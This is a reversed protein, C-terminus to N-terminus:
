HRAPEAEALLDRWHTEDRSAVTRARELSQLAEANEGLQHQVLAFITLDEALPLRQRAAAGDVARKAVALASAFNGLRYQALAELHLAPVGSTIQENAEQVLALAREYHSRTANRRMLGAAAHKLLVFPNSQSSIYQRALARTAEDLSKDAALYEDIQVRSLVGEGAVLSNLWHSFERAAADAALPEVEHIRDESLRLRHHTLELSSWSAGLNRGIFGTEFRRPFGPLAVLEQGTVADWIKIENIETQPAGFGGVGSITSFRATTTPVTATAIREGDESAGIQIIAGQHGRLEARLMGTATEYCTVVQGSAVALTRGANLYTVTPASRDSPGALVAIQEGSAMNWVVIKSSETNEPIFSAVVKTDPSVWAMTSREESWLPKGSAINWVQIGPTSTMGFPNTVRGALPPLNPLAILLNSHFEIRSSMIPVPDTVLEQGDNLNWLHLRAQPSGAHDARERILTAVRTCDTSFVPSTIAGAYSRIAARPPALVGPRGFGSSPLERAPLRRLLLERDTMLNWVKFEVATALDGEQDMSLIAAHESNPSFFATGSTGIMPVIREPIKGTTDTIRLTKSDTPVAINDSEDPTRQPQGFSSRGRPEGYQWRGDPSRRRSSESALSTTPPRNALPPQSAQAPPVPWVCITGDGHASLLRSGDASFAIQRFPRLPGKFEQIVEGSATSCLTVKTVPQSRNSTRASTEDTQPLLAFRQGDPSFQITGTLVNRSNASRQNSAPLYQNALMLEAGTAVDFMRGRENFLASGQAMLRSGDPTFELGAVMVPPTTVRKDSGLQAITIGIPEASSGRSIGTKVALKSGDPSLALYAAIFPLEERLPIKVQEVEDGTRGDWIQVVPERLVAAIRSGDRSCVFARENGGIVDVQKAFVVEGTMADLMQLRAPRRSAQTAEIPNTPRPQTSSLISSTRTLLGIRESDVFCVEVDWIGEERVSMGGDIRKELRLKGTETDWLRVLLEATQSTTRFRTVDALWKGDASFAPFQLAAIGPTPSRSFVSDLELSITREEGHMQRQWYHWEFGRLDEQGPRPRTANLLERVRGTNEADWANQILSMQAGYLVRRQQQEQQALSAHLAKVKDREAEAAARQTIEEQRAAKAAAEQEEARQRQTSEETKAKEARDRQREAEDKASLALKRQAEAEVLSVRALRNARSERVALWSSVGLGLLLAGAIASGAAVAAWNRQVFKKLRYASSAPRAVIAEYHLFRRIDDALANPSDYRRGREKELAKMVIVDLDGRLLQGLKGPDIGRHNSVITLSEGLTSVRTSPRAPEEEKIIRRIEDFAASALRKKDFPTTGTLLEYLLVGLSYVDSRTDVDLANIEAQEPSMYLPTGIMQAFRTYVTKDTLQQGLAKAVGFDIVKVVPVGDHPAVLINSPKLDRHIVGKQHAHQVAQCVNVFLELRQKPTLQNADCYETIPVGRVLEMVFYPRGSNTTGAELVRAINPHDMLALAQREAEFRAIVERTDMGPKIVKLAVKRRVPQQQEAVFVLGFGGEGIQEMLKYPGIQMGPKEVLPTFDDTREVDAHPRALFGGLKGEAALLEEIHRRLAADGGCAQDLYAARQAPDDIDIAALFISRETM